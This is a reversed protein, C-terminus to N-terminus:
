STLYGALQSELVPTPVAGNITKIVQGDNVLATTPVSQVGYVDVLWPSEDIDVDTLQIGHKEAFATIVPEFRKCPGCWKAHFRLIELM